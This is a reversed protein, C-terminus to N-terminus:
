RGIGRLDSHRDCFGRGEGHGGVYCLALGRIQKIVATRQSVLRGSATVGSAEVARLFPDDRERQLWRFVTWRTEDTQALIAGPGYGVFQITDGANKGAGNFNAIVDGDGEGVQIVFKDKGGGGSM